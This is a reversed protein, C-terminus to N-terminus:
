LQRDGEAHTPYVSAYWNYALQSLWYPGKDEVLDLIRIARRQRVSVRFTPVKVLASWAEERHYHMDSLWIIVVGLIMAIAFISAFLINLM